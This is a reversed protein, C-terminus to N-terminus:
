IRRIRKRNIKILQRSLLRVEKWEDHTCTQVSYTSREFYYLLRDLLSTLEPKEQKWREFSERLTENDSRLLGKTQLRKTIRLTEVITKEGPTLSRGLRFRYFGFYIMMRLRYLVAFIVIILSIIFITRLTTADKIMFKQLGTNNTLESQETAVTTIVSSDEDVYLVPSEFGPTAEFSIWGYEGFYLEAWSHADSDTVKYTGGNIEIQQFELFDSVPLRGPAYGKVWRAPIGLSRAMMVMSTSFYDCYGQKIEFLFGDVFDPSIKRTLDPKNTYEYNQRLHNQLLEMKKYPTEGTATIEEALDKVRQPLSSPIQLYEADLTNPYLSDNTAEQLEELPILPVESVVKYRKPYINTTSSDLPALDDKGLHLEAEKAAWRLEFQPDPESEDTKIMEVSRMTYAGFLVPYSQDTEMMVTQEVRQTKVQSSTTETMEGTSAGSYMTYDREEDVLNSWGQGTYHHRTEGRWYSRIPSNITMVPSYLFEFGEGLVSDDQSYGSVSSQPATLEVSEMDSPVLQTALARERNKWATYPDTLLPTVSPMSIGIILVCAVIVVINLVIRTPDRRLSAWGKPFRLQFQRFHLSSLWGLGAFVTWAVNHWCKYPTFSDVITFAIILIGLLILIHKQSKVLKLALEFVCWAVISFWIYPNLHSILGPLQDSLFAGEPEYVQYGVLVLWWGGAVALLKIVWGWFSPLKIIEVIAVIIITITVIASTEEYWIPETLDLWQFAIITIWLVSLKRYWSYDRGQTKNHRSM